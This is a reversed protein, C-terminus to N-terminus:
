VPFVEVYLEGSRVMDMVWLIFGHRCASAFVGSEDFISWMKKKDEASAVKWNKVCQSLLKAQLADDPMLSEPAASPGASDQGTADHSESMLYLGDTPDGEVTAEADDESDSDSDSDALSKKGKVAPGKTRRGRVENAFRDVYDNSLFYTSDSLVRVDGAVRDEKLAMRKLSNNGDM